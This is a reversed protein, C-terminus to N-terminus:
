FSMAQTELTKSLVVENCIAAISMGLGRTIFIVNKFGYWDSGQIQHLVLKDDKWCYASCLRAFLHGMSDIHVRIVRYNRDFSLQLSVCVFHSLLVEFCTKYM